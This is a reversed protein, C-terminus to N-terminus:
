KLKIAKGLTCVYMTVCECVGVNMTVCECIEKTTQKASM